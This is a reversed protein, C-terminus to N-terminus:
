SSLSLDCIIIQNQVTRDSGIRVVLDIIAVPAVVAVAVAVAAVSAVAGVFVNEVDGMNGNIGDEGTMADGIVGDCDFECVCEGVRVRDLSSEDADVTSPSSSIQYQYRHRHAALVTRKWRDSRHRHFYVKGDYRVNVPSHTHPTSPLPFTKPFLM